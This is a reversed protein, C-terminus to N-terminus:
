NQRPKVAPMRRRFLERQWGISVRVRKASARCGASMAARPNRLLVRGAFLFAHKRSWGRWYVSTLRLLDGVHRPGLRGLDLKWLRDLIALASEPALSGDIEDSRDALLMRAYATAEERATVHPGFLLEIAIKGNWGEMPDPRGARVARHSARILTKSFANLAQNRKTLQGAHRRYYVLPERVNELRRPLMRLWLDYDYASTLQERYGGVARLAETRIMATPDHMCRRSGLLSREISAHDSPNVSDRIIEGRDTILTIAAGVVCLRPDRQFCALQRELRHSKAIDDADMVAVFPARAEALARNRAAAGGRNNQQILRFRPDSVVYHQAISASADSSGDDVIIAEFDPLTQRALSDLCAELHKEENFVTVMVSVIPESKSAFDGIEDNM